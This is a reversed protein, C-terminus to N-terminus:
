RAETQNKDTSEQFAAEDPPLTAAALKAERLKNQETMWGGGMSKYISVLALFQDRRSQTELTQAIFVQREADLVDLVTSEGGKYRLRFIHVVDNLTKVERGYAVVQEGAKLRYILSDDIEQLSTQVAQQYRETMEKQVSEAERVNGEIRGASFLPAVLSRTFEGTRATRALLWRLDDSALGLAGTLSIVPFYQAKAVGIRANAAILSQEAALVDPRRSLVDSPVGQPVAPLALKDLRGRQIPGPNRGLLISVSNEAQAIRREIDPLTAEVSEAAARAQLVQIVTASGGKQKTDVVGFMDRRNKLVDRTIELERDLGLLQVYGSAVASVVSLMVARQSAETGMLEALAAENSRKIRGWLDIEWNVVIGTTYNSYKVNASIPRLSPQEESRQQRTGDFSGTVQPKGQAKNVLLRADYEEIRQLAIRLDKNSELASNILESLEADGFAQWWSTNVVDAADPTTSRWNAPLPVEPRKFDPGVTTCGALAVVVLCTLLTCRNQTRHSPM